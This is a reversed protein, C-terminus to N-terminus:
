GHCVVGPASYHAQTIVDEGCCDVTDVSSLDRECAEALPEAERSFRKDLVTQHAPGIADRFNNIVFGDLNVEDGNGGFLSAMSRLM